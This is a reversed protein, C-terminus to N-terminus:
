TNLNRNLWERMSHAKMESSLNENLKELARALAKTVLAHEICEDDTLGIKELLPVLNDTGLREFLPDELSLCFSLRADPFTSQLSEVVKKEAAVFPYHGMFFISAKLKKPSGAVPSQSFATFIVVTGKHNEIGYANLSTVIEFPVASAKLSDTLQAHSEEFFTVIVSLEGKKIAMMAETVTGKLCAAQTKWVKNSPLPPGSKGFSFLGMARKIVKQRNARVPM